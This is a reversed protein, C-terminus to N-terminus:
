PLPSLLEASAQAKGLGGAILLRSNDGLLTATHQERAVAMPPLVKWANRAPDYLEASSQIGITQDYGGTVLVKGSLLLTATHLRRPQNMSTITSWSGIGTDPDPVYLEAKTAAVGDAGGGVVLVSGARLLTATHKTRDTAMAGVSTWVNTTPDYLEASALRTTGTEGGTVLVQGSALLTATHRRRAANLSGAAAWTGTAPNYIEASALVTGGDQQDAGGTVLVRGDPLLTATHWYRPKALNGATSWTGTVADYIAASPGPTAAGAILVKGSPLLVATAGRYNGPANGTRSWTGTTPDYLEASANYGGVVMVRGDQLRTATHLIRDSALNGTRGWSPEPMDIRIELSQPAERNGARDRAFWTITTIGQAAVIVTAQNGKVVASEVQAGSLAYAVEHVGSGEDTATLRVTVPSSHWGNPDPPVSLSATTVPLIIDVLRLELDTVPPPVVLVESEVYPNGSPSLYGAREARVRYYGAIVDWRFRGEADTRDPNTRNSPSMLASGNPVREFPGGATDARYLTVQVDPMPVGSLTRIVGSPDIYIDFSITENESDLFHITVTIRAPGRTPALPPIIAKYRGSPDETMNGSACVALEQTVEYSATGGARAPVELKLEDRHSVSAVGGAVLRSPTLSVVPPLGTPERLTVDDVELTGKAALSVPGITRPLLVSGEPPFIRIEYDGAPLGMVTYRGQAGTRTVVTCPDDGIRAIQVPTDPLRALGDTVDGTMTAGILAVDDRAEPIGKIGDFRLGAGGEGRGTTKRRGLWVHTSGDAWRTYQWRRQVQIGERPIEEEFLRLGEDLESALVQGRPAVVTDVADAGAQERTLLRLRMSGPQFEKPVLAFWHEPVESALQYSPIQTSPSPTETVRQTAWAEHRNFPRGTRSEVVAEVAWALNAMQDRLFRVEEVPPGQLEAPLSPPLFLLDSHGSSAGSMRFLSWRESGGSGGESVLHTGGFVDTVQLTRIRCVSGVPLELPVLFWDNSYLIAYEAVLIRSLDGLAAEVRGFDIRADEFEWWRAVPMGSYAAASPLLDLSPQMALPTSAGAAVIFDYWDLLGGHYEPAELVTADTAGSTAVAVRYEMRPSEWAAEGAAPRSYLTDLWTLWNSAVALIDHEDEPVVELAPPVKGTKVADGLAKALAAGDPARRALVSVTRRSAPDFSETDEPALPYLALVADRYVSLRPQAALMRLFHLGIEASHAPNRAPDPGPEREILVELPVGAPLERFPGSGMKYANIPAVESVVRVSAPSAADEGTFEGLQWQRALLWLPDYVRAELEPAFDERRARPELRTWSTISPM